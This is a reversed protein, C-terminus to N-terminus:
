SCHKTHVHVSKSGKRLQKKKKTQILFRCIKHNNKDTFEPVVLQSRHQKYHSFVLSHGSQIKFYALQPLRHLGTPNDTDQPIELRNSGSYKDCIKGNTRTKQYIKKSAALNTIFWANSVLAQIVSLATLYAVDTVVGYNIPLLHRTTKTKPLLM